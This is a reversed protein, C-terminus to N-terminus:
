RLSIADLPKDTLNAVTFLSETVKGPDITLYQRPPTILLGRQEPLTEARVLGAPLLLSVVFLSILLRAFHKM